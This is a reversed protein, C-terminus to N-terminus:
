KQNGSPCTQQFLLRRNGNVMQRSLFVDIKGKRKCCIFLAQWKRKGNAAFLCFNGM